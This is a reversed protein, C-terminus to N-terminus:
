VDFLYKEVLLPKAIKGRVKERISKSIETENGKEDVQMVAVTKKNIKLIKCHRYIPSFAIDGVKYKRTFADVKLQTKKEADGKVM